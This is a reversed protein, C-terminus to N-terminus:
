CHSRALGRARVKLQRQSTIERETVVHIKRRLQAAVDELSTCEARATCADSEAQAVRQRLTVIERRLHEVEVDRESIRREAEEVLREKVDIESLGRIHTLLNSRARDTAGRALERATRARGNSVGSMMSMNGGLVSGGAGSGASMATQPRPPLGSPSLPTPSSAATVGTPSGPPANHGSLSSASLPRQLKQQQQQQIQSQQEDLAAFHERVNSMVSETRRKVRELFRMRARRDNAMAGLTQKRHAAAERQQVSVDDRAAYPNAFERFIADLDIEDESDFEVRERAAPAAAPARGRRSVADSLAQTSPAIVPVVAAAPSAPAGAPSPSPASASAGRRGVTPHASQPRVPM